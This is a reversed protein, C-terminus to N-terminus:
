CGGEFIKHLIDKLREVIRKESFKEKLCKYGSEAIQIRLKPDNKLEMIANALECPNEPEVLYLEKKHLFYRQIATSDETIVAKRLALGEFVKNGISRSARGGKRFFGLIVDARSIEEIFKAEELYGTFKVNSLGLKKALKRMNNQSFGSGILTFSIDNYDELIKASQLVYELGHQPLFNGWYVVNFKNGKSESISQNIKRLKGGVPLVSIRSPPISFLECYFQKFEETTALIHDSLKFAIKEYLFMLRAKISSSSLIKQEYVETAYISVIPDFILRKRYIKTYFYAM